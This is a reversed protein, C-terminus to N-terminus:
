LICRTKTHPYKPSYDLENMLADRHVCYLVTAVSRWVGYSIFFFALGGLGKERRERRESVQLQRASQLISSSERVFGKFAPRSTFYGAWM